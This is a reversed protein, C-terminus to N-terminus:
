QLLQPAGMPGERSRVSGRARIPYGHRWPASFNSEMVACMVVCFRSRYRRRAIASAASMTAVVLDISAWGDEWGAASHVQCPTGRGPPVISISRTRPETRASVISPGSAVIMRTRRPSRELGAVTCSATSVVPATTRM